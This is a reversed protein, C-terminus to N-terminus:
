DNGSKGRIREIPYKEANRKMKREFVEALDLELRNKFGFNRLAALESPTFPLTELLTEETLRLVEQLAQAFRDVPPSNASTIM